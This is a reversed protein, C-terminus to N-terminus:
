KKLHVARVPPRKKVPAPARAEHASAEHASGRLSLYYSTFVFAWTVTLFSFVIGNFFFLVGSFASAVLNMAFSFISWVILLALTTLLRGDTLKWAKGVSDMIDKGEALRVQILLAYRIANYTQFLWLLALVVLGISLTTFNIGELAQASLNTQDIANLASLQQDFGSFWVILAAAAIIVQAALIRKDQWNFFQVVANVVTYKLWEKIETFSIGGFGTKEGYHRLAVPVVIFLGVFKMAYDIASIAVNFATGSLLASAAYAIAWLVVLVGFWAYVRRDSLWDFGNRFSRIVTNLDM